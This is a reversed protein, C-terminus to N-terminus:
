NIIIQDWVIIGNSTASLKQFEPKLIDLLMQINENAKKNTTEDVGQTACLAALQTISQFAAQTIEFNLPMNIM